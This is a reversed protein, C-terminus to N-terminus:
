HVNLWAPRHRKDPWRGRAPAGWCRVLSGPIRSGEVSAEGCERCLLISHTKKGFGVSYPPPTVISYTLKGQVADYWVPSVVRIDGRSGWSIRYGYLGLLKHCRDCRENKMALMRPPTKRYNKSKGM